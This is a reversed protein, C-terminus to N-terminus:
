RQIPQAIVGMSPRDANQMGISIEKGDYEFIVGSEIKLVSASVDSLKDGVKYARTQGNRLTEIIAENDKAEGYTMIGRLKVLSSLEPVVPKAIVTAKPEIKRTMRKEALRALDRDPSKAEVKSPGQAIAMFDPSFVPGNSERTSLYLLCGAAVILMLSCIRAARDLLLEVTRTM